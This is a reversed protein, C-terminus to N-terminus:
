SKERLLSPLYPVADLEASSEGETKLLSTVGVGAISELIDCTISSAV